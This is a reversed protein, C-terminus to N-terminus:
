ADSKGCGHDDADAFGRLPDVRRVVFGLRGGIEGPRRRARGQLIREGGRGEGGVDIQDGGDALELDRVGAGDGREALGVVEGAGHGAADAGIRRPGDELGHAPLPGLVEDVLQGLGDPGALDAHRQDTPGLGDGRHAVQGRTAFGAVPRLRHAALELIAAEAVLEEIRGEAFVAGARRDADVGQEFVGAAGAQAQASGVVGQGHALEEGREGLDGRGIGM